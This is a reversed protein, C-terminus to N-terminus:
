LKEADLVFSEDIVTQYLTDNREEFLKVIVHKWLEPAAQAFMEDRQQREEPRLKLSRAVM